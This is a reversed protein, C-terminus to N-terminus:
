FGVSGAGPIYKAVVYVLGLNLFDGIDVYVDIQEDYCVM